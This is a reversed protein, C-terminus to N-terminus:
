KETIVVDQIMSANKSNDAESRDEQVKVEGPQDNLLDIDGSYLVNSSWFLTGELCIRYTGAPVERGESDTLDWSIKQIGNNPTASSVADIEQDTMKEPKADAVWHKLADKRKEYGRARGTFDSVYLTRVVNEDADEVWVAVQNSAPGSVRNFDFSIDIGTIGKTYGSKNSLNEKVSSSVHDSESSNDSLVQQGQLAAVHKESVTNKGCGGLLIGASLLIIAMWYKMM